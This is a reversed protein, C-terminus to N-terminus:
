LVYLPHEADLEEAPCEDAAKELLLPNVVEKAVFFLLVLEDEGIGVARM